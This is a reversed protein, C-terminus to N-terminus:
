KKVLRYIKYAFARAYRNRKILSIIKASFAGGFPLKGALNLDLSPNDLFIGPGNANLLGSLGAAFTAYFSKHKEALLQYLYLTNSKNFGRAMSDKRVRYFFLFEPIVVGRYGNELLNIVSDYDEMGYIFKPDNLGANLFSEKKYVLGSSNAMNHYLLLPPEPNFAPWKGDSDGFYQVWSGVFHVNEKAILIDIAKQYYDQAIKDDADLFALFSGKAERAGRNRTAALGSNQQEIIRIDKRSKFLSSLLLSEEKNSGDNVIIIEKDKYNCADISTITEAIYKSMNYYPVVISLLKNGADNNDAISRKENSLISVFPFEIKTAPTQRELLKIKETFYVQPNCEREITRIAEKKLQSIK